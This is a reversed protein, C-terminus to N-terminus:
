SGTRPDNRVGAPRRGISEGLKVYTELGDRTNRVLDEDFRIRGPEFLMAVTSGGLAFVGKRAGREVPVGAEYCQRISGVTMAGIEVMAITGFGDSSLECVMRYNETLVPVVAHRAYPSVAHYTGGISRTDGPTGGDPFHFHHYDSLYLRTLFLSGGDYRRAMRDDALMRELDFEAQKIRFRDARTVRPVALVRGDAPAICVDPEGRVPRRSLDIEREFFAAFSGFESLPRGIDDVDVAFREVFPGIRRRSWRTRQLHGYACSFWRRRLVLDTFLRGSGSNYCWDLFPGALVKEERLAGTERDLYVLPGHDTM